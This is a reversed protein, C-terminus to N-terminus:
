RSALSKAFYIRQHGPPLDQIRGIEVFGHRLYFRAARVNFTDVYIGRCSRRVAEAEAAELLEAGLGTSRHAEAVWLHSIFLWGWHSAGRVGGIVAGSPEKVSVCLPERQAPGFETEVDKSLGEHIARAEPTDERNSVDWEHGSTSRRDTM